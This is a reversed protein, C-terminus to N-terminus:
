RYRLMAAVTDVRSAQAADTIEVTAGGLRQAEAIAALLVDPVRIIPEGGAEPKTLVLRGSGACRYGPRSRKRAVLLTRVQDQALARLVPRLGDVAKGTGFGEVAESVLRAQEAVGGARRADAVSALVQATTIETPNLRATRWVLRSLRPPLASKLAAVVPDTGGLLIGQARHAIVLASLREKVTAYHRREEEHRRGHFAAEGWGPSDERDSHFKGGRMHPSVLCPLETVHATEVLFLRAHAHDLVVALMTAPAPVPAGPDQESPAHLLTSTM